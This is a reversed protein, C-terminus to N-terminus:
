ASPDQATKPRRSAARAGTVPRQWRQKTVGAGITKQARARSAVRRGRKNQQSPPPALSSQSVEGSQLCRRVREQRRRRIQDQKEQAAERMKHEELAARQRLVEAEPQWYKNDAISYRLKTTQESSQGSQQLFSKCLTAVDRWHQVTAEDGKARGQGYLRKILSRLYHESETKWYHPDSIEERCQDIEHEAFHDHWLECRLKHNEATDDDDDSSSREPTAQQRDEIVNNLRQQLYEQGAESLFLARACNNSGQMSSGHRGSWQPSQAM